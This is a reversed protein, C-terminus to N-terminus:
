IADTRCSVPTMREIGPNSIADAIAHQVAVAAGPPVRSRLANRRIDAITTM